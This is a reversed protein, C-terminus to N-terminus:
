QSPGGPPMGRGVPAMGPPPGGMMGPPPMGRGAGPPMGGMMGPPPPMGRGGMMGPPPPGGMMGPPPMGMMGPPPMMPAGRGPPPMMGPPMGMPGGRAYAMPPASAAPSSQPMMSAPAPGGLGRVPGPSLGPPAGGGVGPPPMAIGRSAARGAGVGGPAVRTRTEDLPPPGEVSLSVVCEGRILVLGLTRKQEREEKVKGKTTIKRYEECDGLVINMHKDFAMFKGVLLRSDNITVRMRYNMYQLMKGSKPMSM